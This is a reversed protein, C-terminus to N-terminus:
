TPGAGPPITSPPRNPRGQPGPASDRANGFGTQPKAAGCKPEPSQSMYRDARALEAPLSARGGPANSSPGEQQRSPSRATALIRHRTTAPHLIGLRTPQQGRAALPRHVPAPRPGKGLVTDVAFDVVQHQMLAVNAPGHENESHPGRVLLFEKTGKGCTPTSPGSRAKSECDSPRPNSDSRPSRDDACTLCCKEVDANALRAIGGVSLEPMKGGSAPPPPRAAQMAASAAAPSPGIRRRSRRQGGPGRRGRRGGSGPPEV